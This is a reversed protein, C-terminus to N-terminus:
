EKEEEEDEIGRKTAIQNSCCHEEFKSYNRELHKSM